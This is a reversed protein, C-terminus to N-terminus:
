IGLDALAALLRRVIGTALPVETEARVASEELRRRASELLTTGHQQQLAQALRAASDALHQAEAPATASNPLVRALEEMLDALERQARPDLHDAARLLRALEELRDRPGPPLPNAPQPETTM